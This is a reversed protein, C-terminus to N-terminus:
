KALEKWQKIKQRLQEEVPCPQSLCHQNKKSHHMDGCFPTPIYGLMERIAKKLENLKDKDQAIM